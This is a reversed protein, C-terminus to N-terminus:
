RVQGARRESQTGGPCTVTVDDVFVTASLTQNDKFFGYGGLQLQWASGPLEPLSM